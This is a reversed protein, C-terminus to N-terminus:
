NLVELKKYLYSRSVGLHEAAKKKNGNFRIIADNILKMELSDLSDKLSGSKAPATIELSEVREQKAPLGSRKKFDEVRLKGSDAFIMAREVEHRLQRVNGPWRQDMLFDHVDMGIEPVPRHYQHALESVFHAVLLPLDEIREELTPMAIVVPSIRYFLDLRFRDREIFAELDRNTASILRFDVRKPKDGGIREVMRDQLVRLLKSQVELPMDGIEDLFITGKDALEFKGARGKRDADTFSGPEYGFLESEVLSAPLAAANVTVLRADRRPSFMHLAQAVLEKGTGSEGQILVPIELPAIRRIQDKVAQIAISQGVIADLYKQGSLEHSAKAKYTAIEAELDNIRRAMEELQQPGKFMVRGIAGVIKHDHLIPHRSVVRVRGRMHHVQGVEAVGTRVVHHLRTNEIVDRVKKGIAEGPQLGFFKEHVPSIFAVRANADVVAMADYPDALFHNLIDYAFDVGVIFDLVTDSPSESLLVLCGGDVATVFACYKADSLLIPMIRRKLAEDRWDAESVMAKIRKDAGVGVSALNKGAADTLLLGKVGMTKEVTTAM